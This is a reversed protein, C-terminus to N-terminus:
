AMLVLSTIALRVAKLGPRGLSNFPCARLARRDIADLVSGQFLRGNGRAVLRRLPPRSCNIARVAREVIRAQLFQGALPALPCLLAIRDGRSNCLGEFCLYSPTLLLGIRRLSLFHPGWASPTPWPPSPPLKPPHSGHDRGAFRRDPAGRPIPWCSPVYPSLSSLLLCTAFRFGRPVAAPHDNQAPPIRSMDQPAGDPCASM